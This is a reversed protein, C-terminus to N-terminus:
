AVNYNNNIREACRLKACASRSNENLEKESATVPKKTVIRLEPKHGCVCVPFEKPCICGESKERFFQKVIRDELSHFSIVCLRGGDNLLEVADSLVQELEDLEGNVAIRLAQFPLTPAPPGTRRGSKRLVKDCLAAFEACTSVPSEARRRVVEKALLRAERIEGYDRFIRTLEEESSDRLLDAATVGRSRDMRMDLPGDNRFSFGRDPDDIQPSSVGIDMLIADAKEWELSEMHQKLGSFTGHILHVREGAFALRQASYELATTDRDIGLLEAHPYRALVRSSHGGFGTTCDVVRCVAERDAPMLLELTEEALIPYHKKDETM